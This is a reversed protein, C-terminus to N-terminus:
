AADGLDSYEWLLRRTHTKLGSITSASLGLSDGMIQDSHGMLIGHFVRDYPTPLQAAARLVAQLAMHDGQNPPTFMRLDVAAQLEDDPLCTTRLYYNHREKVYNFACRVGYGLHPNAYEMMELVAYGAAEEGLARDKTKATIIRAIAREHKPLDSWDQPQPAERAWRSREAAWVELTAVSLVAGCEESLGRLLSPWYRRPVWDRRSMSGAGNKTIGMWQGASM